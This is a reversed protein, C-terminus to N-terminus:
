TPCITRLLSALGDLGGPVPLRGAPIVIEPREPIRVDLIVYDPYQGLLDAHLRQTEIDPPLIRM